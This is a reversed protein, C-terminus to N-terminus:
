WRKTNLDSVSHEKKDKVTALLEGVMRELRVFSHENIYIQITSVMSKYSESRKKVEPTHSVFYSLLDVFRNLDKREDKGLGYYVAVKQVLEPYHTMAEYEDMASRIVKVYQDFEDQSDCYLDVIRLLKSLSNSWRNSSSLEGVVKFRKVDRMVNDTLSYYALSRILGVYLDWNKEVLVDVGVKDIANFDETFGGFFRFAPFRDKCQSTARTDFYSDFSDYCDIDNYMISVSLKGIDILEGVGSTARSRKTYTEKFAGVALLFQEIMKWDGKSIDNLENIALLKTSALLELKAITPNEVTLAKYTLSGLIAVISDKGFSPVSSVRFFAKSLVQTLSLMVNLKYQMPESHSFSALVDVLERMSYRKEPIFKAPYPDLVRYYAEGNFAVKETKTFGVPLEKKFKSQLLYKKGEKQLVFGFENLEVEEGYLDIVKKFFRESDVLHEETLLDKFYSRRFTDIAKYNMLLNKM